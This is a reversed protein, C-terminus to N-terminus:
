TPANMRVSGHRGSEGVQVDPTFKTLAMAMEELPKTNNRLGARPDPKPEKKRGHLIYAIM